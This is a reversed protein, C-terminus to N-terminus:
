APSLAPTKLESQTFVYRRQASAASRGPRDLAWLAVCSAEMGGAIPAAHFPLSLRTWEDGRHARVELALARGLWLRV